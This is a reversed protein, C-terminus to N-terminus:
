LLPQTQNPDIRIPNLRRNGVWHEILGARARFCDCGACNRIDYALGVRPYFRSLDQRRRDTRFGLDILIQVTGAM